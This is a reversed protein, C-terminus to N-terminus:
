GGKKDWIKKIERRFESEANKYIEDSKNVVAARIHPYPQVVGINRGIRDKKGKKRKGPRGFETIVAEPHAAITAATYGVKVRISKGKIEKELTLCSPLKTASGDKNRKQSLINKEENLLVDGANDAIRPVINEYVAKDLEYLDNILQRLNKFELDMM